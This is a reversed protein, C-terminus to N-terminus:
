KKICLGQCSLDLAQVLIEVNIKVSALAEKRRMSAVAGHVPSTM